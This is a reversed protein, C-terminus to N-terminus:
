EDEPRPEDTDAERDHKEEPVGSGGTGSPSQGCEGATERGDSREASDGQSRQSLSTQYEENIEADTVLGKKVMARIACTCIYVTQGMQRLNDTLGKFGEVLGYVTQIMSAKTVRNSGKGM